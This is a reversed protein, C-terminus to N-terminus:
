AARETLNTAGCTLCAFGAPPKGACTDCGLLPTPDFHLVAALALITARGPTRTADEIRSLTSPSIGARAATNRVSMGTKRRAARITAAATNRTMHQM